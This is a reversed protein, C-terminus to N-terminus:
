SFWSIIENVEIENETFGVGKGERIFELVVEIDEQDSCIPFCLVRSSADHGPVGQPFRPDLKLNNSKIIDKVKACHAAVTTGSRIQQSKERTSLTQYIFVQFTLIIGRRMILHYSDLSTVMKIM